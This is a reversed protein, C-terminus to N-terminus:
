TAFLIMKWLRKKAMLLLGHKGEFNIEHSQTKYSILPKHKEMTDFSTFKKICRHAIFNKPLKRRLIIWNKKTEMSKLTELLGIKNIQFIIWNKQM